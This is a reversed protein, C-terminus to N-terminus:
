HTRGRQYMLMVRWVDFLANHYPGEEVSDKFNTYDIGDALKGLVEKWKEKTMYVRYAYDTGEDEHIPIAKHSALKQLKKLHDKARAHVVVRTHDGNVEVVSFFGINTFVWM